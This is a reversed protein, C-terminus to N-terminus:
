LELSRGEAVVPLDPRATEARNTHNLHIFGIKARESPPLSSFRAMSETITPHPVESLSREPLEGEELFTGDIWAHDVSAIMEEISRGQRDLDEWSDIDPLFLLSREPGRVRFAVTESHEDRHPVPIPEITIRENLQHPHDALLTVPLINERAILDSWPLNEELFRRMKPMVMVPLRRVDLMEPGLWALGLYHGVHAHTIAIGDLRPRGPAPRGAQKELRYLQERIDPTAEIMWRQGTQHDVIGLAAALRRLSRDEWAPHGHAGVQPVGGDQANGLLLASITPSTTM